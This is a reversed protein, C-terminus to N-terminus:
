TGALLRLSHQASANDPELELLRRLAQEAEARKEQRLLTEALGQWATRYGPMDHVIHRWQAEAHPWDGLDGYLVALNQRAVFGSIGRNRSSLYDQSGDAFLGQYVRAAEALKGQRHLLTAQLFRLEIDEAFLRLGERCAQWAVDDQGQAQCCDVLYAYTKRLQSEHRQSQHISQRLYREAEAHRGADRYTMGLNFLTFPHLPREALERHLIRLDRELKRAQGDPTRDSGSHVVFLDTKEWTGAARNLSAIMQEHIMGEWRLYPLNRFVHLQDVETFDESGDDSPCPCRTKMTYGLLADPAERRVLDRLARGNAADITDDSDMWFIWQGRAYRLAENRAAAFDDCWAFHYVLAGLARAIEPTRDTSGTDVVIMEDVWPRISELAAALTRENDRVIMTLSLVIQKSAVWGGSTAARLEYSPNGIRGVQTTARDGSRAVPEVSPRGIGEVCEAVRVVTSGADGQLNSVQRWKKEFLEQNRRMLGAFDVGSGVFTRGGFHHVFADRAIVARYGAQVARRCYDDDEFCGVGFQEDLLGIKDIVERRILLCFGVLRDTDETQRDHAKGWDWAFGDLGGLDDYGAPVQQEGSVQNSCPGVLGIRPDSHLARLLRELWGTTVVTDNNLLLVQKGRAAQIGQNAARPFGRNDPNAILRVDAQGELFALTGDTSGNDVVILEYSPSQGTYQRISELCSRTYALQNHTLIVISTLGFDPAEVPTAALLYQYAYFEQVEEAPLGSVHLAGIHVRGARMHEEIQDDGPGPTMGLNQVCFGARYLLKEIERRTFFRLHTRDLLGAPEYTWNGALLGRVVSHHRVNPISAVLTGGPRLWGRIRGLLRAPERLHELVDGCIITDFAAPPFDPELQEIDGVLVRDLRSRAREAAAQNMEIGVVHATQRAKISEGLRGAGCGIDLVTRASEPVLALLEPRAFDFYSPDANAADEGRTGLSRKPVAEALSRKPNDNPSCTAPASVELTAATGNHVSPAIGGANPLGETPGTARDPSRAVASSVEMLLREMRHRYTHRILVEKRGAAAIRARIRDHALYYRIKDLMEEGDRYTALHVGDQFLEAQGNDALDNTLLLAGCALAEFVRMNVDNRISRNFVIRSASYTKAMEEFYRQGVFINPFHQEILRVLDARPGPFVNGVFCVDFQKKRGLKQHVAPDCALPLWAASAIGRERLLAAGDRQAAFVFDFDRAKELCWDFNMHTDIAWWACPRLEPPHRYPLGDDIQLYLDYGQRPVRELDCPRFHEVQAIEQLATRCYVGTTEPRTTDDFVLAVRQKAM